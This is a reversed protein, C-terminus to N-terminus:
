PPSPPPTLPRGQATLADTAEVLDVLSDYFADLSDQDYSPVTTVANVVAEGTPDGFEGDYPLDSLDEGAAATPLRGDPHHRERAAHEALIPAVVAAVRLDAILADILAMRQAPTPRPGRRPPPDSEIDM